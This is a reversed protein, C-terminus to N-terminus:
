TFVARLYESGIKFKKV